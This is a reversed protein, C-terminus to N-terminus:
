TKDWTWTSQGCNWIRDYGQEKMIEWESLAPDYGAKVLKYKQYHIRNYRNIASNIESDIDMKM